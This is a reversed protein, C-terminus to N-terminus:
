LDHREEQVRPGPLLHFQILKQEYRDYVFVARMWKPVEGTYMALNGGGGEQFGVTYRPLKTYSHRIPNEAELLAREGLSANGYRTMLKVATVVGAIYYQQLTEATATHVAEEMEYM